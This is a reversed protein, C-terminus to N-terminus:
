LFRWNPSARASVKEQSLAARSVSRTRRKTPDRAGFSVLTALAVGWESSGALGFAWGVLSVAVLSAVFKRLARRYALTRSVTSLAAYYLVVMALHSSISAWVAGLVGYPPILFFNLVINLGAASAQHKLRTVQLNAVLLLRMTATEIGVLIALIALTRVVPIAARFEEGLAPVLIHPAVFLLGWALLSAALLLPLQFGLAARSFRSDQRAFLDSLAPYASVGMFYLPLAGVELFKFSSAYIGADAEGRMFSLMIVDARAYLQYVLISVAFPWIALLTKRLAGLGVEATLGQDYKRASGIGFVLFALGSLPIPVLALVLPAGLIILTASAMTASLRTALELLSPVRMEQLSFAPVFLTRSFALALQYSALLLVIAVQSPSYSVIMVFVILVLVAVLATSIQTGLLRGVFDRRVLPTQRAGERIAYDEIGLSVAAYLLGGLAMGVAYQGLGDPGFFRSLLVFLAFNAFHATLRGGTLWFANTLNRPIGVALRKM